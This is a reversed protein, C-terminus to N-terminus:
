RQSMYLELNAQKGGGRRGGGWRKRSNEQNEGPSNAESCPRETLSVKAASERVSKRKTSCILFSFQWLGYSKTLSKQM